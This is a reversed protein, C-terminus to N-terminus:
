FIGISNHASEEEGEVNCVLVRLDNTTDMEIYDVCYSVVEEVKSDADTWLLLGNEQIVVKEDEDRPNVVLSKTNCPVNIISYTNIDVSTFQVLEETFNKETEVCEKANTMYKGVPCCKKICAKLNCVCGMTKGEFEFYQEKPYIVGDKIIDDGSREGDSIDVSLTVNCPYEDALLLHAVTVLVLITNLTCMKVISQCTKPELQTILGWGRTSYDRLHKNWSTNKVNPQFILYDM